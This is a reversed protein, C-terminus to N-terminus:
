KHAPKVEKFHRNIEEEAKERNYGYKQQLTGALQDYKGDVKDLDDDTLNGWWEKANGRMQKWAGEFWDTNM